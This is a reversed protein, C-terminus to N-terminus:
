DRAEPEVRGYLVPDIVAPGIQPRPTMEMFRVSLNLFLINGKGNEGHWSAIRHTQEAQEYWVPDGMLLMRSASTTIEGRRIGRQTEDLGALRADLLLGNARYSTGYSRFATRSATGVEGDADTIGHDDPMM